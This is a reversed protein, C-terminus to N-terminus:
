GVAYLAEALDGILPNKQFDVRCWLTDALQGLLSDVGHPRINPNDHHPQPRRNTPVYIM